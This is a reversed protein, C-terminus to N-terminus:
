GVSSKLEWPRAKASNCVVGPYKSGSSCLSLQFQELGDVQVVEDSKITQLKKGFRVRLEEDLHANRGYIYNMVVVAIAAHGQESIRSSLPMVKLASIKDDEDAQLAILCASDPDKYVRYGYPSEVKALALKSFIESNEFSEISDIKQGM